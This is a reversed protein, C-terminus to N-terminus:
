DDDSVSFFEEVSPESPWNKIVGDGGIELHVYDGYAGPVVGHPVYNERIAGAEEDDADLLIYTGGDCVKMYLDHEVGEPWNLIQGSDILVEVCWRNGDRHPFELPMDEDDYYVPLDLAISRIDLEVPKMVTAKM